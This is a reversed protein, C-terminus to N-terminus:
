GPTRFHARARIVLAKGNQVSDARLEISQPTARATAPSTRWTRSSGGARGTQAGHGADGQHNRGAREARGRPGVHLRCRGAPPQAEYIVIAVAAKQRINDSHRANKASVRYLAYDYAPVSFVPSVLPTRLVDVTALTMQDNRDILPQARQHPTM